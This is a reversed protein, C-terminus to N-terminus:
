SLEMMTPISYTHPLIRVYVTGRGFRFSCLKIPTPTFTPASLEGPFVRFNTMQISEYIHFTLPISRTM